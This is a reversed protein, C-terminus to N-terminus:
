HQSSTMGFRMGSDQHPIILNENQKILTAKDIIDKALEDISRNDVAWRPAKKWMLFKVGQYFTPSPQMKIDVVWKAFNVFLGADHLVNLKDSNSEISKVKSIEELLTAMKKSIADWRVNSANQDIKVDTTPITENENSNENANIKANSRTLRKQALYIVKTIVDDYSVANAKGKSDNEKVSEKSEDEM